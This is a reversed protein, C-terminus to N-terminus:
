ETRVRHAFANSTSTTTTNKRSGEFPLPRHGAIRYNNHKTSWVAWRPFRLADGHVEPVSDTWTTKNWAQSITKKETM